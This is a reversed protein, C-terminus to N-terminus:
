TITYPKVNRGEGTLRPLLFCTFGYPYKSSMGWIQNNEYFYMASTGTFLILFFCNWPLSKVSRNRLFAEVLSSVTLMAFFVHILVPYRIATTCATILGAVLLAVFVYPLWQNPQLKKM